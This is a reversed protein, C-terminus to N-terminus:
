RTQFGPRTATLYLSYSLTQGDDLPHNRLKVYADSPNILAYNLWLVGGWSSTIGGMALGLVQNWEETVFEKTRVDALAATMPLQQIGHIYELYRGFYTTYDIKQEFYIGAVKNKIMEKSRNRNNNLFWFYEYSTRKSIAFQLAALNSIDPNNTAIGWLRAGWYFNISEPVSEQDRGAMAGDIKIGSAWSHGAFWDWCRYSAFYPDEDAPNNVDRILTETWKKIEATRWNPDLHHTVAATVVMYGQHYHHDNYYSHGFEAGPNGSGGMSTPLGARAVIGKYLNDYKFPSGQRNELYPTFSTKLKDLATRALAPDSLQTEPKNLILALMAVKQLGKGSFYIDNKQTEPVYDKNVDDRLVKLIDSRSPAAPAPNPPLWTVKSITPENLTWTNGIVATMTGKTASELTLTTKKVSATLSDMHHNYAYTLVGRNANGEVKWQIGYSANNSDGSTTIKGSTAWVDRYNDLTSEAANNPIRAVRIVGNYPESAIMNNNGNKRLSLPKDGLAYIVYTSTPNNNFSLKFKKGTYVDAGATGESVVNIIAHQTFFQPTLGSYKATVYPMGRTLPFVINQNDNSSLKLTASVHDWATVLPKPRVNVWEKATFRLDVVFPNIMFGAPSSPVNNSQQYSGFIKNSAQSISLGRPGGADDLIRIVYPDPTTPADDNTSPYFLNGIWSNTPVPKRFNPDAYIPPWPHTIKEFVNPPAETSIPSLRKAFTHHTSNGSNM